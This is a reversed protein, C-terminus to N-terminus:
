HYIIINCLYHHNRKPIRLRMRNFRVHRIIYPIELVATIKISDTMFCSRQKGFNM